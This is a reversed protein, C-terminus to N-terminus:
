PGVVARIVPTTTIKLPVEYKQVENAAPSLNKTEGTQCPYVEVKDNTAWVTTALTGRRIVINTPYDRVFTAYLTDTGSQKKLRLGTGSFSARGPLKTDFTSNLASNDVDATDPDFGMLGDPTLLAELPTGLNLETTTPANLNAIAPVSWVKTRGDTIIDAV